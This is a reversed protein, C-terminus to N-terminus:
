CPAIYISLKISTESKKFKHCNGIENRRKTAHIFASIFVLLGFLLSIVRPAKYYTFNNATLSCYEKPKIRLRTTTTPDNFYPQLLAAFSYPNNNITRVLNVWTKKPLLICVFRSVPYYTGKKRHVNAVDVFTLM